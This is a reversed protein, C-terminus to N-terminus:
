EGSALLVGKGLQSLGFIDGSTPLHGKSFDGIASFSYFLLLPAIKLTKQKNPFITLKIKYTILSALLVGM